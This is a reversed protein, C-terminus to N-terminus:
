EQAKECGCHGERGRRSGVYGDLGALPFRSGERRHGDANGVFAVRSGRGGDRHLKGFLDQRGAELWVRGALALNLHFGEVLGDLVDRLPDSGDRPRALRTDGDSLEVLEPDTELDRLVGSLSVLKEEGRNLDVVIALLSTPDVGIGLSLRGGGPHRDDCAVVSSWAATGATLVSPSSSPVAVTAITSAMM